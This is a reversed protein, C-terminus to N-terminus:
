TSQLRVAGSSCRRPQGPPVNARRPLTDSGVRVATARRHSAKGLRDSLDAVQESTLANKVVLYGRLDFLYKEAESMGDAVPQENIGSKDMNANDKPTARM